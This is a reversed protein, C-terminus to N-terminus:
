PFRPNWFSWGFTMPSFDIYVCDAYWPKELVFIYEKQYSEKCLLPKNIKSIQRTRYRNFHTIQGKSDLLTDSLIHTEILGCAGYPGRQSMWENGRLRFEREYSNVWVSCTRSQVKLRMDFMTRLNEESRDACFQLVANRLEVEGRSIKENKSTDDMMEKIIGPENCMPPM